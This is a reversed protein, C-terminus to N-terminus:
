RLAMAFGERLCNSAVFVSFTCCSIVCGVNDTNFKGALRAVASVILANNTDPLTRLTNGKLRSSCHGSHRILGGQVGSGGEGLALGLRFSFDVQRSITREIIRGTFRCSESRVNLFFLSSTKPLCFVILCRATRKSGKPTYEYTRKTNM